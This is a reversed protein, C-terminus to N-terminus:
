KGQIREELLFPSPFLDQKVRKGLEISEQLGMDEPPEEYCESLAYAQKADMLYMSKAGRVELTYWDEYVDSGVHIHRKEEYKGFVLNWIGWNRKSAGCECSVWIQDYGSYGCIGLLAEVTEKPYYTDCVIAIRKGMALLQQYAEQVEQRPFVNETLCNLEAQMLSLAAEKSVSPMQALEAYIDGLKMAEGHKERAVEEAERRKAVLSEDQGVKRRAMEVIDKERYPVIDLLTGFLAFSISDYQALECVADEKSMGLYGEFPKLTRDRKMVKDQVNVIYSHYGRSKAVFAVARELVHALTGDIQGRERPFDKKRFGKALLPQIADTRAWFFSGVPYFFIGDEYPIGLDELLAKGGLGNAMWTYGIMPIDPHWDPYILGADPEDRFKRMIGSVLEQSGLLSDLSYRRWETGGTQIHKSKKSHVHLVYRYGLLKKAFTAYFPAMDRGRNECVRIEAKRLMPLKKWVERFIRGVNAGPACSVYLDFEEPINAFYGLFEELLDVYFLHLHVAIEPNKTHIRKWYPLNGPKALSLNPNYFPDGQSIVDGWKEKMYKAEHDLRNWNEKSRDSGRTRSEYHVAEAWPTFVNQLGASRLKLCFDVDNYAVVLNEDFGGVAEYKGKSVMLCAATVASVDQAYLLRGMHGKADKGAGLCSHAAIGHLGAGLVVGAHQITMNEYYLKAGVAGVDDRQAYMLLEQIWDPTLVEIDNNLLVLYDGHAYRVGFNNIASYNFAGQWSIVRVNADEAARAYLEKVEETSSNNDLILIEYNRYTTRGHIASLCSELDEAHDRNPILISVKPEGTLQYRIRCIGPMLPTSEVVASIGKSALFGRVVDECGVARAQSGCPLGVQKADSRVFSLIKPIHVIHGAVDTLRLVLDHWYDFCPGKEDMSGSCDIKELLKHDFSIFHGIYNNALLNDASYDPKYHYEEIKKGDDGSVEADDAYLFDASQLRIAKSFKLLADKRLVDGEGLICLFGGKAMQLITSRTETATWDRGLRKYHIRADKEPLKQCIESIYAHDGDSIDALCLEWKKYKQGQISKLMQCLYTRPTDCLIVLIHFMIDKRMEPWNQSSRNDACM